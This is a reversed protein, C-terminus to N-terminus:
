LEITYIDNIAIRTGDEMLVYHLVADIKKISGTVTEYSGGEKSTDNAFYTISVRPHETCTMSLYQLKDNLLAMEEDDLEMRHDTIRATEEVAEDYGSLASFPAFQAARKLMSIHPRTKSQHHPHDIIDDYEGM